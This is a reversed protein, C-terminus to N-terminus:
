YRQQADLLPQERHAPIYNPIVRVEALNLSQRVDLATRLHGIHLPDFTGGLVGLLQDAM